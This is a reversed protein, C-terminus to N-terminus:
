RGGAALAAVGEEHTRYTPSWGLASRAERNSVRMSTDLVMAGLYPAALRIVPAPLRRPAPAQFAEAMDGFMRGWSTAQDDVINFATGRQGKELAAVTASAADDIHVWALDNDYGAPVPLKRQHLLRSFSERDAGYFLGYRLAIGEVDPSERVLEENTLMAAVHPNCRGSNPRGFPAAETLPRSGHDVYGYGFVISQTVFRVAGVERAAALLHETGITRLRNTMEMDRHRAPPKSLATLQHVVADLRLGRLARILGPRDLADAVVPQIGAATLQDVKRRDRTLGVVEHGNVQLARTLPGGIAGTAGALLVKM